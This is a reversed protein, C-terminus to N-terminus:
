MEQFRAIVAGGGDCLELEGDRLHFTITTELAELFKTEREAVAECFMKTVAMHAFVLTDATRQYIGTLQNCGTDGTLSTGDGGLTIVSAKEDAKAEVAVGGVEILTWTKGSIDAAASATDAATNQAAPTAPAPTETTESKKQCGCIGLVLTLLIVTKWAM